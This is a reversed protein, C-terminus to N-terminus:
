RSHLCLQVSRFIVKSKIDWHETGMHLLECVCGLVQTQRLIKLAILEATGRMREENKSLM